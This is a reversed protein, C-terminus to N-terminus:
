RRRGSSGSGYGVTAAPERAQERASRATELGIGSSGGIVVVTQGALQQKGDMANM